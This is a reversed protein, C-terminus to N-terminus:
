WGGAQPAEDALGAPPPVPRRPRRLLSDTAWIGVFTLSVGLIGTAGAARVKSGGHYSITPEQPSALTVIRWRQKVGVGRQRASVLAELQQRVAASRDAVVQASPGVVEVDIVPVPYLPKWQSGQNSMRVEVASREGIGYLRTDSSATLLGPHAGNWLRVFMGAIPSMEYHATELQNAYFQEKPALVVLEYGTWYVGPRHTTVWTAGLTLAAGLLLLYWRRLLVAILGRSTM